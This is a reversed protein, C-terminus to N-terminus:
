RGRLSVPSWRDAIVQIKGKGRPPVYAVVEQRELGKYWSHVKSRGVFPTFLDGWSDIEWVLDTAKGPNRGATTFDVAYWVLAGGSTTRVAYVPHPSPTPTYYGKWGLKTFVKRNELVSKYRDTVSATLRFLQTSPSRKGRSLMDAHAAPLRDPPLVLSPDNPPVVDPVDAVDIGKGLAGTARDARPSYAVLWPGGRADQVFVMLDRTKKGTGTNTPAIVFWRPYTNFKPSAGWASTFKFSYARLKNAKFIKYEARRLELASGTEARAAVTASLRRQALNMTVMHRILVQKAGAETIARTLPPPLKALAARGTGGGPGCGTVAMGLFAIGAAIPLM